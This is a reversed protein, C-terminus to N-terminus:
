PSVLGTNPQAQGLTGADLDQNNSYCSGYYGYGRSNDTSVWCRTPYAPAAYDYAQYAPASYVPPVYAPAYADGPAYYTYGPGYGPEYVRGGYAANTAAAGALVGVGFGVAAATNRGHAAEGPTAAALALAGTMAAAAAFKVIKRMTGGEAFIAAM